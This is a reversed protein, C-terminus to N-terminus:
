AVARFSAEIESFVAALAVNLGAVIAAPELSAIQAARDHEGRGLVRPPSRDLGLLLVQMQARAQAPSVSADAFLGTLVPELALTAMARTGQDVVASFLGSDALWTRLQDQVLAAPPAFFENWFDSRQQGGALRTVLGRMEVGPAPTVTRLVLVRGRPNPPLRQPRRVDLVFLSKEPFPRSLPNACGAALAPAALVLGRRGIVARSM